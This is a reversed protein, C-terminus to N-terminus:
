AESSGLSSTNEDDWYMRSFTQMAMVHTLSCLSPGYLLVRVKRTRTLYKDLLYEVDRLLIECVIDRLAQSINRLLLILSDALARQTESLEIESQVSKTSSQRKLTPPASLTPNVDDHSDISHTELQLAHQSLIKGQLLRSCYALWEGAVQVKSCVRVILATYDAFEENSLKSPLAM